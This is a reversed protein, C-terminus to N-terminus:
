HIGGNVVADPVRREFPLRRLLQFCGKSLSVWGNREFIKLRRSVVERATGLETALGQHTMLIRGKQDALDTLKVALRFDISEFALKGIVSLLDVFRKGHDAFVVKQFPASESLLGLFASRPILVAQVKTEATARATYVAEALLNATTLVCSDGGGLRYLVIEHGEDDILAVRVLGNLVVIYNTCPQGFDFVTTNPALTVRRAARLVRDTTSKGLGSLRPVAAIWSSIQEKNM